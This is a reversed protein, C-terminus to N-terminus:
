KVGIYIGRGARQIKGQKLTKFVINRVKKEDFGTKKMLTTTDVGKRSRNIIKLVQDAATVKVAKKKAPKAKVAKAKSARIAKAKESKEVAKLLKELKNGIAAIDRKMATLDKKITM